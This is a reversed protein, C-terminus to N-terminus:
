CTNCLCVEECGRTWTLVLPSSQDTWSRQPASTAEGPGETPSISGKMPAARLSAPCTGLSQGGVPHLAQSPGSPFVLSSEPARGGGTGQAQTPTPPAPMCPTLLLSLIMPPDGSSTAWGRQTARGWCQTLGQLWLPECPKCHGM